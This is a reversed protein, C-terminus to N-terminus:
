HRDRLLRGLASERVVRVCDPRMVDCGIVLDAADETVAVSGDMSPEPDEDLTPWRALLRYFLADLGTSARADTNLSTGIAACPHITTSRRGSPRIMLRERSIVPNAASAM